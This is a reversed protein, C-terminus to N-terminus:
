KQQSQVHATSVSLQSAGAQLGQVARTLCWQRGLIIHMVLNRLGEGEMIGFQFQSFAPSLSSMFVFSPSRGLILSSPSVKWSYKGSSLSLQGLSYGDVGSGEVVVCEGEVTVTCGHQHASDLSFPLVVMQGLNKDSPSLKLNEQFHSVPALFM